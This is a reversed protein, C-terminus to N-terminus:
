DFESIPGDLPVSAPWLPSNEDIGAFPMTAIQESIPDLAAAESARASVELVESFEPYAAIEAGAADDSEEEKSLRPTAPAIEALITGPEDAPGIPAIQPTGAINRAYPGLRLVPRGPNRMDYAAIDRNLVESARHQLMILRLAEIAANEPLMLKGGNTLIIDWRRKGVRVLGRVRGQIPALIEGIALAEDVAGEAGEGGIVTLGPRESRAGLAEVRHGEHDIAAFSQGDFQILIPIRPLIDVRMSGRYDFRIEANGIADLASLNKALLDRDLRLASAPLSVGLAETIESKTLSTENAIQIEDIRFLSSFAIREVLQDRADIIRSQLYPSNWMFYLAGLAIFLPALIRTTLFYGRSLFLRTIRYRFRSLRKPQRVTLARSTKRRKQAPHTNSLPGPPSVPPLNPTLAESKHSFHGRSAEAPKGNIAQRKQPLRPARDNNASHSATRRKARPSHPPIAARRTKIERTMSAEDPGLVFERAAESIHVYKQAPHVQRKGQRLDPAPRMTAERAMARQSAGGRGPKRSFRAMLTSM